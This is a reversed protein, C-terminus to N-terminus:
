RPSTPPQRRETMRNEEDHDIRDGVPQRHDSRRRATVRTLRAAPRRRLGAPRCCTSCTSCSCSPTSPRSTTPSSTASRRPTSSARRRRGPRAALHRDSTIAVTFAGSSKAADLMEITENTRGSNSIGIAVSDTPCSRRAPSAKTCRAGRTPTSASATSATGAARLGDRRQRRRRLHRPAHVALDDQRDARLADLDILAATAELAEAQASLLTRLMDTPRTRRPRVRPRHRHAVVRLRRLADDHGLDSALGVRFQVYGSYGLPRCFRTVTAASTGARAALDTISLELLAAPDALVPRRDQDDGAVAPPSPRPRPQGGPGREEADGRGDGFTEVVERRM